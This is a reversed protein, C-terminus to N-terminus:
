LHVSVHLCRQLPVSNHMVKAFFVIQRELGRSGILTPHSIVVQMCASTFSSFLYDRAHMFFSLGSRTIVQM